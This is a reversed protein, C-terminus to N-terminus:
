EIKEEKKMNDLAIKIADTINKKTTGKNVDYTISFGCHCTRIFLNDKVENTGILVGENNQIESEGCSPCDNLQKAVKSYDRIDM